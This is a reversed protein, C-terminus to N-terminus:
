FTCNKTCLDELLFKIEDENLTEEVLGLKMLSLEEILNPKWKENDPLDYVRTNKIKYKMNELETNIEFM